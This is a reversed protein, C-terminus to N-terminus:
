CWGQFYKKVEIKTPYRWHGDRFDNPHILYTNDMDDTIYIYVNEDIEDIEKVYYIKNQTVDFFRSKDIRYVYRKDLDEEIKWEAIKESPIYLFDEMDLKDVSVCHLNEDIIILITPDGLTPHIHVKYIKGFLYNNCGTVDYTVRKFGDGTKYKPKKKLWEGVEEKTPYRWHGDKFDDPHIIYERQKDNIIYVFGNENIREVLYMKAKTVDEFYSKDIRYVYRKDLDGVEEFTIFNCVDPHNKIYKLNTRYKLGASDIFTISDHISNYEELFEIIQYPINAKIRNPYDTFYIIYDGVEPIQEVYGGLEIVSKIGVDNKNSKLRYHKGVLVIEDGPKADLELIEKTLKYIM